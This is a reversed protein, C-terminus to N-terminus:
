KHSFVQSFSQGYANVGHSFTYTAASNQGAFTGGSITFGGSFGGGGQSIGGSQAPTPTPRGVNANPNYPNYYPPSNYLQKPTGPDTYSDAGLSLAIDIGL